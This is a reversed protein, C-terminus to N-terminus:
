FTDKIEGEFASTFCFEYSNNDRKLSILHEEFEKWDATKSERDSEVAEGLEYVILMVKQM